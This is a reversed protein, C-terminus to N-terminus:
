RSIKNSTIVALNKSTFRKIGSLNIITIRINSCIMHLLYTLCAVYLDEEVNVYLMTKEEHVWSHVKCLTNPIQNNNPIHPFWNVGGSEVASMHHM